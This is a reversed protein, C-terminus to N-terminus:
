THYYTFFDDLITELQETQAPTLDLEQRFRQLSVEKGGDKWAPRAQPHMWRHAGAAMALMGASAGCLFVVLLLLLIKPNQWGPAQASTM